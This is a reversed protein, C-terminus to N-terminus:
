KISGAIKIMEERSLTSSIMTLEISGSSWSLIKNGGFGSIIKGDTGNISVKEVDGFEPPPNEDDKTEESLILNESGKQYTLSLFEKTDYRSVTASDFTYGEPLYSPSLVTFNVDGRAEELTMQKPPAPPERTVVKAGEPVKFEFESDPIGTNFKIDRYETSIVLKDNKDFMEMKLPMWTESDVWMNYYIGMSVSGNGPSAKILYVSREEFKDAGLYSIDTQNLLEKISRTYDQESITMNIKPMDMKTVENKKPDYTWITKGDSVMVQGATEAPELYEIRSKDPMKNMIKAKAMEDKGGFSSTIVMTASFDKISDQKEKMKQAIQEASMNETCGSILAIIVVALLIIGTKKIM